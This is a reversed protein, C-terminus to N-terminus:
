REGNLISNLEEISDDVKEVDETNKSSTGDKTQSTEYKPHELIAIRKAPWFRLFARGVVRDMPILGIYRSDTSNNRNDGMVFFHDDPVIMPGCYPAKIGCHGNSSVEAKYPEQLLKDNIFVGKGERVEIVDGPVGIVRKIYAKDKSFIGIARTFESWLDHELTENPPYFVIIDGREIDGYRHTFKEIILRDGEILTPRMSETPIWRPEGVVERIGVILVLIILATELLYIWLKKKEEPEILHPQKNKETTEKKEM